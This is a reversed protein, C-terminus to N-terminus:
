TNPAYADKVIAPAQHAHTRAGPEIELSRLQKPNWCLQRCSRDFKCGHNRPRAYLLTIRSCFRPWHTMPPVPTRHPPRVSPRAQTRPQPPTAPQRQPQESWTFNTGSEASSHVPIQAAGTPSGQPHTTPTARTAHGASKRAAAPVGASDVRAQCGAAPTAVIAGGQFGPTRRGM